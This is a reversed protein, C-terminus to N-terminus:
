LNEYLENFFLLLGFKKNKLLLLKLKSKLWKFDIYFLYVGLNFINGSYELSETICYFTKFTIYSSCNGRMKCFNGKDVRYDDSENKM